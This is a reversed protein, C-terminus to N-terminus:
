RFLGKLCLGCGNPANTKSAHVDGPEKAFFAGEAVEADLLRKLLHDIDPGFLGLWDPNFCRLETFAPQVSPVNDPLGAREFCVDQVNRAVNVKCCECPGLPSLVSGLDHEGNMVNSENM